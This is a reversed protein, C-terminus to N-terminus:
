HLYDARLGAKEWFKRKYQNRIRGRIICDALLLILRVVPKKILFNRIVLPQSWTKIAAFSSIVGLEYEFISAPKVSTLKDRNSCIAEIRSTLSMCNNDKSGSCSIRSADRHRNISACIRSFSRQISSNNPWIMSSAPCSFVSRLFLLLHVMRM